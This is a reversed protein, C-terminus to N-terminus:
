LTVGFYSGAASSVPTDQPYYAFVSQRGAAAFVFGADRAARFPGINVSGGEIGVSDAGVPALVVQIGHPAAASRLAAVTTSFDDPQSGSYFAVIAKWSANAPTPQASATSAPRPATSATPEPEAARPAPAAPEPAAAAVERPAPAPPEATDGSPARRDDDDREYLAGFGAGDPAPSPAASPAPAPPESQTCALSVAIVAGVATATLLIRRM